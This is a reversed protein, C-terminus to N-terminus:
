TQSLAKLRLVSRELDIGVRYGSLFKHGVIGGLQFGLLASPANLNLVVVPFNTYKIKDFTLDMGPMLFADKDWGSSGYVKLAIKRTGEKVPIRNATAQSISIVEGGTDVVFSAEHDKGVLGRVTALRYVRLPLELDSQEVPLHKGFILKKTGYDIIMSYGLSLPSLSETENTPLDRLPPSKIIVPVNRMKLPGLELSDIRALQLGRLGTEGVGASLTYTIPAVGLRRATVETIVTNEAGTDVVFDQPSSDNVRARVVIKENVTRFDVTFVMDDTGPDTQFPVRQAFSRLFRIEARSWAAKESTDKNPLLNVYNGYAVAAEEYKHMREYIAGVTHHVELDRPALRLAAQAQVMADDLHNRALLSRAMGHLGRAHDPQLSLADKYQAESEEFLGSAWLADGYLSLASADRPAIKVLAEAERRALDFEAVRLASTIVGAHAGRLLSTDTTKLAHQYAELAEIYRGEASLMTGLQLQIEAAQSPPTADAHIVFSAAACLAVVSVASPRFGSGM